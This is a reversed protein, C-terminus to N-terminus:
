VVSRQAYGRTFKWSSSWEAALVLPRERLVQWLASLSTALMSPPGYGNLVHIGYLFQAMM